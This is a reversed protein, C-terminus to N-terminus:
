SIIEFNKEQIFVFHDNTYKALEPPDFELKFQEKEDVIRFRETSMDNKKPQNEVSSRRRRGKPQKKRHKKKYRKKEPRM